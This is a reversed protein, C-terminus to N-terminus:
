SRQLIHIKIEKLEDIRLMEQISGLLTKLHLVSHNLPIAILM